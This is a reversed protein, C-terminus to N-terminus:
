ENEVGWGFIDMVRAQESLLKAHADALNVQLSEADMESFTVILGWRYPPHGEKLTYTHYAKGQVVTRWRILALLAGTQDGAEWAESFRQIIAATESDRDSSQVSPQGAATHMDRLLAHRTEEDRFFCCVCVDDPDPANFVAVPERTADPPQTIMVMVQPSM